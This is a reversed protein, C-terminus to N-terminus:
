KNVARGAEFVNLWLRRKAMSAFVWEINKRTKQKGRKRFVEEIRGM